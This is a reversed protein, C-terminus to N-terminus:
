SSASTYRSVAARWVLASLVLAAGAWALGYLATAPTLRGLLAEAPVTSVFAIPIVLSIIGRVPEPFAQAPFRAVDLVGFVLEEINAIDVVWFCLASLMAMLAYLLILAALGLGLFAIWREPGPWLRLQALAYGILALGVGLSSLKELRFRRLTAHFMPSIPKILVYDMAGTRVAEIVDRLNPQLFADLFGSAIFFMGVVIMAEPFSWGGLTARHSYFLVAGGVAWLADLLSMLLAGAFNVRYELNTLVSNHAFLKLLGVYRGITRPIAHM